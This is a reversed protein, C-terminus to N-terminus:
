EYNGRTPYFGYNRFINKKVEIRKKNILKDKEENTLSEYGPTYRTMDMWMSMEKNFENNAKNFNADGVEKRFQEKEKTENSAWNSKLSYTNASIGLGDAILIALMNASNEDKGSEIAARVILPTVLNAVEKMVTPKNGERDEGKLFRENVVSAIPSLKNEFFNWIVGGTTSSGFERTNLDKIVGTTSNKVHNRAVRSALTVISAMGGTVDFRTNGVKIKGFDASTPDYDVSEKDLAKALVLIAATAGVMKLLNKAAQYRIFPPLEKSLSFPTTLVDINSKM